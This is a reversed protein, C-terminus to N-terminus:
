TARVDCHALGETFFPLLAQPCQVVTSLFSELSLEANAVSLWSTTLLVPDQLNTTCEIEPQNDLFQSSIVCAHVKPPFKSYSIKRM